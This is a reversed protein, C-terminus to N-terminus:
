REAKTGKDKSTNMSEGEAATSKFSVVSSPHLEKLAAIGTGNRPAWGQAIGLALLIFLKDWFWPLLCGWVADHFSGWRTTAVQPPKLQLWSADKMSCAVERQVEASLNFEDMGRARLMKPLLEKLLPCDNM